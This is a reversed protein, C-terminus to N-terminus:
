TTSLDVTDNGWAYKGDPEPELDGLEILENLIARVSDFETTTPEEWLQEPTKGVEGAVVHIAAAVAPHTNRSQYWDPQIEKM